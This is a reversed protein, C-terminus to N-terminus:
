LTGQFGGSGPDYANITGDGFNGVLLRGGFDGFTPPAIVMGWPANLKGRSILRQQFRGELDFVSIYGNGDGPEDDEADGDQKAYAVYVRKAAVYVNFPAYGSPLDPDKFMGELTVPAFQADYVEVSGGHFDAALLVPGRTDPPAIALGKYIAHSGSHNVVIAAENNEIGNYWGSITGDETAFLFAAAKGGPLVFGPTNNFVQGTPSSAATSGPARLNVVLTAPKGSTDYIKATGSHNNSLWLPSTPSAAIGWPNKLDPDLFDAIGPIDSVLNHQLYRNESRANVCLVLGTTIVPLLHSRLTRAAPYSQM